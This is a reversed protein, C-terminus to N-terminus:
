YSLELAGISLPFVGGWPILCIRSFFSPKNLFCIITDKENEKKEKM